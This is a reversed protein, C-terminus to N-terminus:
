GSEDRLYRLGSHWQVLRAVIDAEPATMGALLRALASAVTGDDQMSAPFIAVADGPIDAVFGGAATPMGVEFLKWGYDDTLTAAFWYAARVKPIPQLQAPLGPIDWTRWTLPDPQRLPANTELLRTLDRLYDRGEAAGAAALATISKAFQAAPDTRPRAREDISVVRRGPTEAIFFGGDGTTHRRVSDVVRRRDVAVRVLVRGAGRAGFM